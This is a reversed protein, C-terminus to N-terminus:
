ALRPLVCVKDLGVSKIFIQETRYFPEFHEDFFKKELRARSDPATWLDIPNSTIVLGTLGFSSIVVINSIIALSSVPHKAFFTGIMRFIEGFIDTRESKDFNTDRDSSSM